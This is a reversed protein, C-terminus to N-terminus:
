LRNEAGVLAWVTKGASTPTSGWTRSLASVIALGSVIDIGRGADEHRTAPQLSCDEVAVTLTRQYKEAILVPASDTHQLVNEIFVTAVTSAVPILPIASWATMWQHIMARGLRVSVDSRPLEARARLRGASAGRDAADLAAERSVYVPVYRTVGSAAIVRRVEINNCILLIPINPWTSVHWRASTFVSWASTSAVSLRNVDVIVATPEDLATKIVTDRLSRYTSSDLLGDAIVISAGHHHEIGLVIVPRPEAV